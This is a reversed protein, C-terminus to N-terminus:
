PQSLYEVEIIARNYNRVAELFQLRTQTYRELSQLFQFFDIEGAEMLLAANRRIAEAQDLGHDDYYSLQEGYTRLDSLAKYRTNELSRAVLELEQVAHLEDIRARQLNAQQPRFWLPVSVGVLFGRMGRFRADTETISQRFYGVSIEPFFLSKQVATEARSAEVREEFVAVFAQDANRGAVDLVLNGVGQDRM